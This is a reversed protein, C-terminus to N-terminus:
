MQVLAFLITCYTVMPSTGTTLPDFEHDITEFQM